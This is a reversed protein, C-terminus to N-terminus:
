SVQDLCDAGLATLCNDGLSGPGNMGSTKCAALVAEDPILNVSAIEPKVYARKQIM